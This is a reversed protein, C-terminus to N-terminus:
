YIGLVEGLVIDGDRQEPAIRRHLLLDSYTHRVQQWWALCYCFTLWMQLLQLM